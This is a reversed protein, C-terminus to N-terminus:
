IKIYRVTVPQSGYVVRGYADKGDWTFDHSMNASVGTFVEEFSQGAIYVHLRVELLSSPYTDGTLPIDLTYNRVDGETRSSRYNISLPTGAIPTSEGLVQSQCEIISGTSACSDEFPWTFELDDLNPNVADAPFVIPWNYDVPSFHNVLVRWLETGPSYLTAIYEREADTIGLAVGNDATGDGSTDLDAKSNTINLVKIVRGDATSVWKATMKDYYYSPVTEGVAFGM